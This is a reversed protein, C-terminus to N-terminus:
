LQGNIKGGKVTSRDLPHEMSFSCEGGAVMRVKSKLPILVANGNGTFDSADTPYVCIM